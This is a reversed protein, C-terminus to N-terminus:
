VEKDHKIGQIRNSINGVTRKTTTEKPKTYIYIYICVCVYVFM